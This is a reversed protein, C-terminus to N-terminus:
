PSVMSWLVGFVSAARAAPPIEFQQARVLRGRGEHVMSFTRGIDEEGAVM